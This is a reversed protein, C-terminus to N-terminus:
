QHKAAKLGLQYAKELAGSVELIAGKGDVERFFVGGQYSMGLAHFFYKATLEVGEFLKKGRTAGVAILYGKKAFPNRDDTEAQEKIRRVWRAQARDVIAKLQAPFSYFYIPSSLIICDAMDLKPYLSQMTDQVICEGKEECGGCGRCGAIDYDAARVTEIECGAERVGKLASDLLLDSNGGKRPSAYIGLVNM